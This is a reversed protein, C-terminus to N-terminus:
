QSFVHELFEACVLKSEFRYGVERAKSGLEHRLQPNALVLRLADAMAKRDGPPILVARNTFYEPIGPTMTGIITKGAAAAEILKMPVSGNSPSYLLPIVAIGFKHFQKLLEGRPISGYLHVRKRVSVELEAM